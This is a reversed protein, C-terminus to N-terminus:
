QLQPNCRDTEVRNSQSLVLRNKSVPHPFALRSCSLQITDASQKAGYKGDGVIPHGIASFQARIQHYRGTQLEITVRTTNKKTESTQIAQYHLIAQKAEKNSRSAVIARYDGHILYHELTGKKQTLIGEVEATYEREILNARSAENLRSLAKSTRAFIVLGSVPRDIRHICHLFVAGPKNYKRQVWAKAAAELSQRGTDDPQTLWGAPKNVVLVQNDCFLVDLDVNDSPKM